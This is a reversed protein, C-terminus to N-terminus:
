NEKNTFGITEDVIYQDIGYVKDIIYLPRKKSEKYISQLHYYLTNKTEWFSDADIFRHRQERSSYIENFAKKSDEDVITIFKYDPHINQFGTWWKEFLDPIKKPGLWIRIFQKPIIDTTEKKQKTFLNM